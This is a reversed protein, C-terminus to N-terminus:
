SSLGGLGSLDGLDGIGGWNLGGRLPKKRKPPQYAETSGHSSGVLEEPAPKLSLSIRHKEPDVGLVRAEVEQGVSVADGVTRVRKDSLESIHILGEVGPRLEVFAGFDTLRTITGTVKEKEPFHDTAGAWPDEQLQKISLSIRREKPQIRLVQVEVIDGANVVESCKNIRKTRSMESIPILGEVGEELEAFAGFDALKTVRVKITMGQSYKQDVDDWPNPLAQKLGLGIRQKKSDIKLVRVTVTQGVKVVDEVKEVRSYSLDAIHLLGDVGGIDVFAGFDTIRTVKGSVTAGESLEKMAKELAEAQEQELLKRRSLLVNKDNRDVETVMCRFREGILTSIDHIRHIDVQSAPMFARIGKLDLELGGKNMGTVRGEVLVGPQLNAWTAAQVAGERSMVLLGSDKDYYDLVLEVFEGVSPPSDGFQQRTVVGQSKAGADVFVDDGRIAVVRCRQLGDKTRTSGAPAESRDYVSDMDNTQIDALMQEVERATADDLSTGSSPGAPAAASPAPEIPPSVEPVRDAGTPASRDQPQADTGSNESPTDAGSM